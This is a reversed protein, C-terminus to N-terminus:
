CKNREDEIHLSHVKNDRSRERTFSMSKLNKIMPIGQYRLSVDLYLKCIM